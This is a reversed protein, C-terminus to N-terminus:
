GVPNNYKKSLENYRELQEKTQNLEIELDEIEEEINNIDLDEEKKGKLEKELEIVKTKLNLGKLEKFENRDQEEFELLDKKAGGM